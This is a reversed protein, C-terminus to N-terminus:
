ENFNLNMQEQFSKKPNTNYLKMWKAGRGKGLPRIKKENRMRALTRNITSDSVTPHARRIDEKSFVEELKNITNEIYDSKNHQKDYAYNRALEHSEKYSELAIDLIFRHLALTDALGESWNRSASERAKEFAEKRKYLKEFFSSLHFAKYDYSILLIYLTLLGILTNHNKFPALHIFDIYFDVALLGREYETTRQARHYSDVLTGLAERKTKQGSALLNITKKEKATSKAFQLAADGDVDKYLFKLMDHIETDILDFTETNNHIRWLALKLNALFREPRNKPQVNKILIQRFRTDSVDLNFFRAFFYADSRITQEIMVPLDPKVVQLTEQNRGIFRYLELYRGIIDNPIRVHHIADLTFM